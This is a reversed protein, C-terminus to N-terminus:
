IKRIRYKGLEVITISKHLKKIEVTKLFNKLASKIQDARFSFPLRLIVIGYAPLKSVVILSGFGLDKTIVIGKGKTAYSLIEEDSAGGLGIDTVHVAKLNLEKFIELSSYPLNADLIFKM